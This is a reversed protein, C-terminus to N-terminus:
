YEMIDTYSKLLVYTLEYSCAQRVHLYLEGSLASFAVSFFSFIFSSPTKIEEILELESMGLYCSPIRSLNM